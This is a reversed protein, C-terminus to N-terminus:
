RPFFNGHYGILINHPVEIRALEAFSGADLILAFSNMKDPNLVITIIVGDDEDNGHPNAIFTPESPHCGEEQWYGNKNGQLDIKVLQNYFGKRREKNVSLAYLYRYDHAFMKKNESFRPMEIVEDSLIEERMKGSKIDLRQRMIRGAPIEM